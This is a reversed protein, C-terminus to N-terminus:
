LQDELPLLRFLDAPVARWGDVDPETTKIEVQNGGEYHWTVRNRDDLVVRYTHPPLDADLQEAFDSAAEPSHLFLGMESNVDFSRPDLNLSGVFLIERDVVVAKTHLTLVDSRAGSLARDAASDVKVEYLEVGGKLLDKRYPAYGSHVAVHNTSALSNTVVAVRVGKARITQLFEVGDRGPM